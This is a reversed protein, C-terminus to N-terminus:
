RRVEQCYCRMEFLSLKKEYSFPEWADVPDAINKRQEITLYITNEAVSEVVGRLITSAILLEVHDGKQFEKQRDSDYWVEFTTDKTM